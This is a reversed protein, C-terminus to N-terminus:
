FILLYTHKILKITIVKHDKDDSSGVTNSLIAVNEKNFVDLCENFDDKISEEIDRHYPLTLTNDKDFVM